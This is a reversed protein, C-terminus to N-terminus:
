SLTKNIEALRQLAQIVDEPPEADGNCWDRVTKEDVGLAASLQEETFGANTLLDRMPETPNAQFTRSSERQMLTPQQEYQM